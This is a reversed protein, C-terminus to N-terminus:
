GTNRMGAAIGNITIMLADRLAKDGPKERLERLIQVQLINIPDLFSNRLSLLHQLLPNHDCLRRHGTVMLLTRVTTEYRERISQGIAKEDADEVLTEDYVTAIRPDVKALIMEILDVTSHFLPWSRYMNQLLGLQGNDIAKQLASGFGLWSPFVLRTQTWAFIWPISKITEPHGDNNWHQDTLTISSLEVEPTAHHFYNEFKPHDIVHRYASRSDTSLSEM